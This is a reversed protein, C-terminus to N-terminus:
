KRRAFFAAILGLALLAIPAPESVSTVPPKPKTGKCKKSHPYKACFKALKVKHNKGCKTEKKGNVWVWKCGKPMKHGVLPNGYSGNHHKKNHKYKSYYNNHKSGNNKKNHHSYNKYYNGYYSYSHGNNNSYTANAVLPMFLIAALLVLKKM